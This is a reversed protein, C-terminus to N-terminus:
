GEKGIERIALEEVTDGPIIVTLHTKSGLLLRLLRERIPIRRYSVLGRSQMRKGISIQLAHKMVGGGRFIM